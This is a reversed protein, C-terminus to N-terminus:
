PRQSRDCYLAVRVTEKMEPPIWPVGAAIANEETSEFEAEAASCLEIAERDVEQLALGAPSSWVQTPSVLNEIRAAEEAQRLEAATLRTVIELAVEHFDRLRDPPEVARFEDLFVQRIEARGNFYARLEAADARPNEVTVELEDLRANMTQVMVELEEAYEAVTVGSSCAAALLAAVVCAAYTRRM